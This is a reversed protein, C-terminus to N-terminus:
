IEIKTSFEELIRNIQEEHEYFVNDCCEIIGEAKENNEEELVLYAKYARQVNNKLNLPLVTKLASLEKQLDSTNELNDFYQYHGGNNVEGIYTMLEAYPSDMQGKAWLEWMKNWQQQKDTLEVKKKKFFVFFGM